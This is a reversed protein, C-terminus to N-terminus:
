ICNGQTLSQSRLPFPSLPPITLHKPPFTITSAREKQKRELDAAAKQELDKTAAQNRALVEGQKPKGLVIWEAAISKDMGDLQSKVNRQAAAMISAPDSKGPELSSNRRMSQRLWGVNKEKDTKDEEELSKLVSEWDKVRQNGRTLSTGAAKGALAEDGEESSLTMRAIREAVIRRAADDLDQQNNWESVAEEEIARKRAQEREAEAQDSAQKRAMSLTAVRQLDTRRVGGPAEDELDRKALEHALQQIRASEEPSRFYTPSTSKILASDRHAASAGRLAHSPSPKPKPQEPPKTLSPKHATLAAKMAHAASNALSAGASSVALAPPDHGENGSNTLVRQEHRQIVPCPIDYLLRLVQM